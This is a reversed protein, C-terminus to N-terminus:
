LGNSKIFDVYQLFIDDASQYFIPDVDFYYDPQISTGELHNQNEDMISLVPISITYDMYGETYVAIFRGASPKGIIKIHENVSNKINYLFMDCASGCIANPWIYVPVSEGISPLQTDKVAELRFTSYEMWSGNYWYKRPLIFSGSSDVLGLMINTQHWGGGVSDRLDMVFYDAQSQYQLYCSFEQTIYLDTDFIFSLPHYILWKEGNIEKLTAFENDSICVDTSQVNYQRQISWYNNMTMDFIDDPIYDSLSEFNVVINELKGTVMDQYSILLWNQNIFLPIEFYQNENPSLLYSFLLRYAKEKSEYISSQPLLEIIRNIYYETNIGNISKIINGEKLGLNRLDPTSKAIVVDDNNDYTTVLPIVKANDFDNESHNENLGIYFHGDHILSRIYQIMEVKDYYFDIIHCESM